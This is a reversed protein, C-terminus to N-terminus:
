RTSNICSFLVSVDCANSIDSTEDDPTALPARPSPPAFSDDQKRQENNDITTENVGGASAITADKREEDFSSASKTAEEVTTWSDLNEMQEVQTAESVITVSTDSVVIETREIFTPDSASPESSSEDVPNLTDVAVDKPYETSENGSISESTIQPQDIESSVVIQPAKRNMEESLVRRETDLFEQTSATESQNNTDDDDDYNSAPQEQIPQVCRAPDTKLQESPKSDAREITGSASTEDQSILSEAIKKESQERSTSLSGEASTAGAHGYSDDAKDIHEGASSDRFSKQEEVSRDQQYLAEDFNDSFQGAQQGDAFAAQETWTDLVLDANKRGQDTDTRLLIADDLIRQAVEEEQQHKDPCTSPTPCPEERPVSEGTLDRAVDSSDPEDTPPVADKVITQYNTDESDNGDVPESRSAQDDDSAKQVVIADDIVPQEVFVQEEEENHFHVPEPKVNDVNTHPSAHGNQHGYPEEILSYHESEAAIFETNVDLTDQRRDLVIRKIMEPQTVIEESEEAGVVVEDDDTSSCIRLALESEILEQLSKDDSSLENRTNNTLVLDDDDDNNDCLTILQNNSATLNDLDILGNNSQVGCVENKKSSVVNISKKTAVEAM